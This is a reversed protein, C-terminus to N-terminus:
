PPLETPRGEAAPGPHAHFPTRKLWLRAAQLYIWYLVRLGMLPHRFQCALLARPTLPAKRALTLSADFLKLGQHHNEMHVALKDGPASFAWHYHHDMPWFPSVHFNKAVRFRLAKADPAAAAGRGLVYAYREGWPTNNIDVVITEVQRDGPDFCYYFSVPNFNTGFCRLNTLLRIPGAPAPCGREVVLARIASALDLAPDGWYDARRFAVLAHRRSSVLRSDGLTGDLDALDLYILYLPYSFSHGHPQFRRHRIRGEYIASSM